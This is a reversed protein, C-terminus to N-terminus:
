PSAGTFVGVFERGRGGVPLTALLYSCGVDLLIRRYFDGCIVPDSGSNIDLLGHSAAWTEGQAKLGPFELIM